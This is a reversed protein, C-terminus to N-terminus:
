FKHLNLNDKIEGTINENRFIEVSDKSSFFFDWIGEFGELELQTM